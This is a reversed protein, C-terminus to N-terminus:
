VEDYHLAGARQRYFEVFEDFVVPWAPNDEYTSLDAPVETALKLVMMWLDRNVGRGHMHEAAWDCFPVRLPWDHLLFEWYQRAEELPLVKSPPEIAVGFTYTYVSHLSKGNKVAARVEQMKSRLEEVTSVELVMCGCIFERRRFIGMVAAGCAAAFALAAVDMAPDVGLDKFFQLLRTGAIGDPGRPDDQPPLEEMYKLYFLQMAKKDV